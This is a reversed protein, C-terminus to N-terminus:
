QNAGNASSKTQVLRREPSAHGLSIIPHHARQRSCAIDFLAREPLNSQFDNSLNSTM